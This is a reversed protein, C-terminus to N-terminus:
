ILIHLHYQPPTASRRGAATYYIGLTSAWQYLLSQTFATNTAFIFPQAATRTDTVRRYGRFLLRILILDEAVIRIRHKPKQLDFLIMAENSLPCHPVQLSSAIM